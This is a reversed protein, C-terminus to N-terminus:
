PKIIIKIIEDNNVSEEFAEKIDALKYEASILPEVDILGQQFPRMAKESWVIREYKTHHVLTTTIIKFSNQHWRHMNLTVPQTLWSYLVLHGNHKLIASCANLSDQNGAAEFVVDVGQGNTLGMITQYLNEKAPNITVDAGMKKALKLKDELVDIAIIKTAGKKRAGQLMIQGAFGMGMVAVTDGLQVGSELVSHMACALPEGLAAIRMDLGEPVPQLNIPKTKFYDAFTCSRSFSMVLDGAQYEDVKSGVAEVVGGGEHGIFLPYKENPPMEGRYYMKDTGCISSQLTRVLVEDDELVLEKEVLVLKRPGEIKLMRTKM